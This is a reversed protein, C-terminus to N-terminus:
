GGAWLVFWLVNGIGSAVVQQWPKDVIRRGFPWLAYCGIRFSGRDRVPHRHDHHVLLLGALLYALFM